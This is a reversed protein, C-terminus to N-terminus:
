HMYLPDLVCQLLQLVSCGVVVCQLVSCWVAVYQWVRCWLSMGTLISPNLHSISEWLEKGGDEM